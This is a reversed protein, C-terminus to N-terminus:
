KGRSGEDKKQLLIGEVSELSTRLPVSRMWPSPARPCVGSTAGEIETDVLSNGVAFNERDNMRICVMCHGHEDREARTKGVSVCASLTACGESSGQRTRVHDVVGVLRVRTGRRVINVRAVGLRHASTGLM